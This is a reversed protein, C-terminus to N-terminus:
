RGTSLRVSLMVRRPDVFVTPQGFNSSYLNDTALAEEAAENLANLVDLLLEVRTQSHLRITRSLRVDLLTQSSLRRSGRSELLVRQNGQPLTIQASAAWPKGSFHQASAAVVFGTRPVRLSASGRLVHPRDNPLRGRANTLSNPDRGFTGGLVSSFQADGAAGGSSPQLGYTRSLTYSAFAQWGNALRKEFATVLGHYTLSYGEPNTLLFRRNAPSGVLAFVPVLRGDALTRTEARYAGGTDEWGIFGAGDKHVYAIAVALKRGIERDVGVSYEDTRPARTAPDLRLNTRPDVVSVVRTYGGTSLDFASTTIPTQGPHIPGLEGTLVGQHFRGYSARLMTRRDGTIAMTVGLRASWVNWSYLTGLGEVVGGTNGGSLDRAPLDQSIARTHDFRV